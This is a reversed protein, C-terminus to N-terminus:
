RLVTVKQVANATPADLRYFYIGSPVPHGSADRGNWTMTYSGAPQDSEVLSRVVRGTVDYVTLSITGHTLLSYHVTSHSRMPNPHVRLTALHDLAMPINTAGSLPELTVVVQGFNDDYHSDNVKYNVFTGPAEFEISSLPQLVRTGGSSAEFLLSDSALGAWDVIFNQRFGPPDEEDLGHTSFDSHLAYRAGPTTPMTRWASDANPIVVQPGVPSPPGALLTVQVHGVNDAYSSDLVRFEVTSGTAVFAISSKPMLFPSVPNDAGSEFRYPRLPVISQWRLEYKQRSGPAEGAAFQHASFDATITYTSDEATGMTHWTSDGAAVQITSGGVTRNADVFDSPWTFKAIVAPDCSYGPPVEDVLMMSWHLHDANNSYDHLIGISDGRSVQAGVTVAVDTLHGYFSYITDVFATERPLLFSAAPPAVHRILM